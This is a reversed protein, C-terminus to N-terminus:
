AGRRECGGGQSLGANSDRRLCCRQHHGVEGDEGRDGLVDDRVREDEGGLAFASPLPKLVVLQSLRIGGVVLVPFLPPPFPPPILRSAPIPLPPLSTLFQTKLSWFDCERVGKM